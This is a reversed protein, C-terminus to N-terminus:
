PRPVEPGVHIRGDVVRVEYQTLPELAPERVVEGTLCRFRAGHWVCELTGDEHVEGASLPFAQHTCEDGFATVHDNFRVLCIARGNPGDVGLVGNDPVDDVAAVDVFDTTM